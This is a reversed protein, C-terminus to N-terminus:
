EYDGHGYGRLGYEHFPSESKLCDMARQTFEPYSGMKELDRVFEPDKRGMVRLKNERTCWESEMWEKDSREVGVWRTGYKVVNGSTLPRHLCDQTDIQEDIDVGLEFLIDYFGSYDGEVIVKRSKEFEMLDYLSIERQM